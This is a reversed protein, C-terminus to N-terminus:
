LCSILENNYYLGIKYSTKSFGKIHNENLFHKVLKVDKIEKIVCDKAYIKKDLLNL